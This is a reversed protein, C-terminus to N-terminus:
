KKEKLAILYEPNIVWLWNGKKMPDHRIAVLGLQQLSRLTYVFSDYSPVKLGREKLKKEMIPGAKPINFEYESKFLSVKTEKYPKIKAIEENSLKFDFAKFTNYIYTSRIQNTTRPYEMLIKIINMEQPTLIKELVDLNELVKKSIPRVELGIKEKKEQTYGEFPM